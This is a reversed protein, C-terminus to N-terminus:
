AGGEGPASRAGAEGALPLPSSGGGCVYQDTGVLSFSKRMFTAELRVKTPAEVARNEALVTSVIVQHLEIDAIGSMGIGPPQLMDIIHIRM